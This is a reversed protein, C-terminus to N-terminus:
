KEEFREVYIIGNELKGTITVYLESMRNTHTLYNWSLEQGKEDFMYFKWSGDDQQIDIGYGSARCSDMLMCPLDHEPPSEFDSCDEDILIGYYVEYNVTEEVINETEAVSTEEIIVQEAVPQIPETESIIETMETETITTEANKSTTDVTTLTTIQQLTASSSSTTEVIQTQSTSFTRNAILEPSDSINTKECGNLMIFPIILSAFCSKKM